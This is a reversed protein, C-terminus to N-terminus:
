EYIKNGDAITSRVKKYFKIFEKDNIMSKNDKYTKDIFWKMNLHKIEIDQFPNLNFMLYKLSIQTIVRIKLNEFFIKNREEIYENFRSYNILIYNLNNYEAYLNSKCFKITKSIIAIILLLVM